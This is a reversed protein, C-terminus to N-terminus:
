RVNKGGKRKQPLAGVIGIFDDSNGQEWKGYGLPQYTKESVKVKIEAEIELRLAEEEPEWISWEPDVIKVGSEYLFITFEMRGLKNLIGRIFWPHESERFVEMQTEDQWSPSTGMSVHSHGWFQISNVVEMGDKRSSLIETAVEALGEPTIECTAAAVEQKFLFVEKILFDSGIRECTGLWGIEKDALEVIYRMRNYAARSVYVRPLETLLEIKKEFAHQSFANSKIAKGKIIM